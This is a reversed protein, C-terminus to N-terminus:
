FMYKSFGVLIGGTILFADAPSWRFDGGPARFVLFYVIMMALGPIFLTIGYLAFNVARSVLIQRPSPGRRTRATQHHGTCGSGTQSVRPARPFAPLHEALNAIYVTQEAVPTSDM